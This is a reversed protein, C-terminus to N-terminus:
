STDTCVSCLGNQRPVGRGRVHLIPPWWVRAYPSLNSDGDAVIRVRSLEVCGFPRINM